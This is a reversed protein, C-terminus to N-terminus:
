ATILQLSPLIYWGQTNPLGPQTNLVGTANAGFTPVFPNNTYVPPASGNLSQSGFSYVLNSYPNPQSVWNRQSADIVVYHKVPVTKPTAQVSNADNRTGVDPALFRPDGQFEIGNRPSQQLMRPDTSYIPLAARDTARLLSNYDM